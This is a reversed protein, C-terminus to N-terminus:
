NAPASDGRQPAPIEATAKPPHVIFVQTFTTSLAASITTMKGTKPDPYGDAHAFLSRAFGPPSLRGYAQHHTSEAMMMHDYFKDVDVNGAWLGEASTDKLNLKFQMDRVVVVTPTSNVYTWPFTMDKPATTLVGNEIKGKTVHHFREGWRVDLRQSGGPIIGKGTADRLLPDLGRYMTVTVEPDNTLDDVETLEILTRNYRKDVIGKSNFFAMQGDPLRLNEQCGIVRFFENDIGKEGTPSTFDNADVKGDLNLGLSIQGTAELYPYKEPKDSPFWGEIERALHSEQETWKQGKDQPFMAKFIERPGWLNLGQPCEDKGDPTQYVSWYLSTLAYGITRDRLAGGEAAAVPASMGALASVVALRKWMKMDM